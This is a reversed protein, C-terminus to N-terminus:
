SVARVAKDFRDQLHDDKVKGNLAQRVFVQLDKDNLLLILGDHQDAVRKVHGYYHNKIEGRFVVVVFRGGANSLYYAAQQFDGAKLDEYNKCEFVVQTGNYRQRVMEWFGMTARNAAVWDRRIMGDVERVQAEINALNRFFCLELVQGVADEFAAAAERGVPLSRLNDRLEILEEQYLEFNLSGPLEFQYGQRGFPTEESFEQVLVDQLDLAEWYSSHVVLDTSTSVPPPTTDSPGLGRFLPALTVGARRSPQSFGLFGINYLLQAFQEPLSHDYIWAGCSRRIDDDVLIRSLLQGLGRVTWKGGLGYFRSLVLSIQPYNEQYEDGLDKLRSVSFRRRASHLDELMIVEHKKAQATDLALGAYTIVDRPRRQCFDFVMRRSQEGSEFFADWTAGGLPLKATLPANLRREVMELLQQESWDLGVVCTELRAFESDAQRIREFINERVFVLARVGSTQTNVELVAHMLATLYTVALESGDWSDDIADLLLTYRASKAQPLETLSKGVLKAMKVEGLWAADDKAALAKMISGIYSVARLDFDLDGFQEFENQLLEDLHREYLHDRSIWALLVEVELSRRFAATLSRFPRQKADAFDKVSFQSSSPSFLEPRILLARATAREVYRAITTKGTGRRGVFFCHPNSWEGAATLAPTHVFVDDRELTTDYEAFSQGLHVREIAKKPLKASPTKSSSM